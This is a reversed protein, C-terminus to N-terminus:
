ALIPVDNQNSSMHSQEENEDIASLHESDLDIPDLIHAQSMVSISESM